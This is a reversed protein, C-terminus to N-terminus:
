VVIMVSVEEGSVDRLGFKKNGTIAKLADYTKQLRATNESSLESSTGAIADAIEKVEEEEKQTVAYTEPFDMTTAYVPKETEVAAPSSPIIDDTTSASSSSPSGGEIQANITSVASMLADRLPVMLESKSSEDSSKYLNVAADVCTVAGYLPSSPDLDTVKPPMAASPTVAATSGVDGSEEKLLALIEAAKNELQKAEDGKLRGHGFGPGGRHKLLLGMLSRISQRTSESDEMSPAAIEEIESEDKVSLAFNPPPTTETPTSTTSTATPTTPTNSLNFEKVEPVFSSTPAAAQQPEPTTSPAVPSVVPSAVSSAVSSAQVDQGKKKKAEMLKQKYSVGTYTKDVEEEAAFHSPLIMEDRVNNNM